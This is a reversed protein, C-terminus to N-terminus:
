TSVKVYKAYWDSAAKMASEKSKGREFSRYIEGLYKGMRDGAHGDRFPDLDKMGPSWDGFEPNSEPNRRFEDLADRLSIWDNFIVQNQGWYTFPHGKHGSNILASPVGALHGEFAASGGLIKGIAVDAVLAAEAPYVSGSMTDSTLFHCRGTGKAREILESISSIRTFLDTSNKPKFVMGLTPDDLLWNLVYEYDSTAEEHHCPNDWFATSNEDFFCLIYEAGNEILQNRIETVRDVAKLKEFAGDYIFGVPVFNDVPSSAQTFQTEFEPSFLFHVNEGCNILSTPYFAGITYQYAVSVSGLSELALIKAVDDRIVAVDIQINNARYFDYWYAHQLALQLSTKIYFTSIWELRLASRVSITFLRFLSSFLVKYMGSTPRWTNIGPGRGLIRIGNTELQAKTEDNLPNQTVFDYLLINSYPIGSGDLWFFESRKTPDLELTRHESRRFGFGFLRLGKKTLAVFFRALRTPKWPNRGSILNAYVASKLPNRYQVVRIGQAKAYPSIYSYWQRKELLLVCDVSLNDSQNRFIWDILSIRTLEKLVEKEALREFHFSLKPTSWIPSMSTIVPHNDLQERKIQACVVRVSAMVRIFEWEGPEGDKDNQVEGIHHNVKKFESKILGIKRFLNTLRRASPPLPEFYWVTGFRRSVLLLRLLSVLSISDVFLM